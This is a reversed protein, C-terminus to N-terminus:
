QFYEQNRKSNSRLSGVSRARPAGESRTSHYSTLATRVKELNSVHENMRKMLSNADIGQKAAEDVSPHLRAVERARELAIRLSAELFYHERRADPVSELAEIDAFIQNAEHKMSDRLMDNHGQPCCNRDDCSLLKKAGRASTLVKFEKHSVTRGIKPLAIRASKGFKTKSPSEVRKKYWSSGDFREREGIGHAKGSAAGFALAAKGLTGNLHDLIIPKGLNHLGTLAMLFDRTVAPGSDGKIGSTRLWLNEFPLDALSAVMESRVDSRKLEANKHIVPYDIAIQGGGERDLAKRLSICSLRDVRLWDEFNPDALYHTPALVASFEYKVAFRAIDGVLDKTSEAYFNTPGLPTHSCHKGWPAFRAQGQFKNLAALEAVQPDLVLEVNSAQLSQILGLQQEVRSADFVVRMASLRGQAFLDGLKRHADGVRIFQAIETSSTEGPPFQYIQASM